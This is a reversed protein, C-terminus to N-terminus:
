SMRFQKNELMNLTLLNLHHHLYIVNIETAITQMIIKHSNTKQLLLQKSGTMPSHAQVHDPTHTNM